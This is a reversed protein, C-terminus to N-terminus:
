GARATIQLDQIGAVILFDLGGKRPQGLQAGAGDDHCALWVEVAPAGGDDREGGFMGNGGAVAPAVVDREAAEETVAGVEGVGIAQEIYGGVAALFIKLVRRRTPGLLRSISLM